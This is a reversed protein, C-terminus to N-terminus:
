QCSINILLVACVDVSSVRLGTFHKNGYHHPLLHISDEKWEVAFSHPFCAQGVAGEAGHKSVVDTAKHETVSAGRRGLM